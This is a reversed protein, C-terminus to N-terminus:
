ASCGTRLMEVDGDLIHCHYVTRGTQRTFPIRIRAWGGPPVLVVDQPVGSPPTADSTALVTFPWVHLHFPPSPTPSNDRRPSERDRRSVPATM